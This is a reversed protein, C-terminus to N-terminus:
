AFTGRATAGSLGEHMAAPFDMSSPALHPPLLCGGVELGYYLHLVGSDDPIKVLIIRTVDAPISEGAKVLVDVFAQVAKNDEILAVEDGVLTPIVADLTYQCNPSSSQAYVPFVLALTLLGALALKM